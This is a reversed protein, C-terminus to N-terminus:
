VPLHRRTGGPGLIRQLDWEHVIPPPWSGAHIGGLIREAEWRADAATDPTVWGSAEAAALEDTDLLVPLEGEGLWVDLFLDTTWWEGTDVSAVPTLINAYIGTFRGDALHFRGIDYARGPFTFWIAPAGDELIVSGQVLLPRALPTRDLFTVVCDATRHVLRQVFLEERDPPRRYHIRVTDATSVM